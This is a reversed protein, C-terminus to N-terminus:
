PPTGQAPYDEELVEPIGTCPNTVAIRITITGLGDVGKAYIDADAVTYSQTAATGLATIAGNVNKYWQYVPATPTGVFTVSFLIVDDINYPNSVPDAILANLVVVVCPPPPTPEPGEGGEGPTFPLAKKEDHHVKFEESPKVGPTVRDEGTKDTRIDEHQMSFEESPTGRQPTGGTTGDIAYRNM